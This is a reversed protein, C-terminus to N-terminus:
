SWRGIATGVPAPHGHTSPSVPRREPRVVVGGSRGQHVDRVPATLWLGTVVVAPVVTMVRGDIGRTVHPVASFGLRTVVV